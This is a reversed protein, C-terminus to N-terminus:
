NNILNSITSNELNFVWPLPLNVIARETLLEQLTLIALICKRFERFCFNYWKVVVRRLRLAYRQIIGEM